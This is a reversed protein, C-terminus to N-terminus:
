PMYYRNGCQCRWVEPYYETESIVGHPSSIAVHVAKCPTCLGCKSRCTPPSSGVLGRRGSTSSMRGSVLKPLSDFILDAEQPTRLDMRQITHPEKEASEREAQTSTAPTREEYSIMTEVSPTDAPSSRAVISVPFIAFLALGILCTVMGASMNTTRRRRGPLIGKGCVSEFRTHVLVM